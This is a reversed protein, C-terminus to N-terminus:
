RLELAQMLADSLKVCAKLRLAHRSVERVDSPTDLPICDLAPPRTRVMESRHCTGDHGPSDPVYQNRLITVTRSCSTASAASLVHCKAHWVRAICRWVHGNPKRDTQPKTEVVRYDIPKEERRQQHHQEHRQV